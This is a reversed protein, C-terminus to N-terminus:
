KYIQESHKLEEIDLEQPKFPSTQLTIKLKGVVRFKKNCPNCKMKGGYVKVLVKSCLPCYQKETM